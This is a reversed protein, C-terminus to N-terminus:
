RFGAQTATDLEPLQQQGHYREHHALHCLLDRFDHHFGLRRDLHRGLPFGTAVRMLPVAGYLCWADPSALRLTTLTSWANGIRGGLVNKYHVQLM